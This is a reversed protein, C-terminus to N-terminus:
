RLDLDRNQGRRGREPGLRRAVEAAPGPPAAVLPSRRTVLAHQDHGGMGVVLDPAGTGHQQMRPGPVFDMEGVDGVATARPGKADGGGFHGLVTSPFRLHSGRPERHRSRMPHAEVLTGPLLRGEKRGEAVEESADRRM